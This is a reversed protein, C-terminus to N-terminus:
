PVTLTGRLEIRLQIGALFGDILESGSPKDSLTTEAQLVIIGDAWPESTSFQLDPVVFDADPNATAVQATTIESLYLRVRFDADALTLTTGDFEGTATVEDVGTVALSVASIPLGSLADGKIVFLALPFAGMDAEVATGDITLAWPGVLETTVPDDVIGPLAIGLSGAFCATSGGAVCAGAEGDDGGGAFAIEGKPGPMSEGVLEIQLVGEQPHDYTLVVLARHVALPVAPTTESVAPEDVPTDEGLAEGETNGPLAVRLCPYAAIGLRPVHTADSLPQATAGALVQLARMASRSTVAANTRGPATAPATGEPLEETNPADGAPAQPTHREPQGTECGGFLARTTDLDRPTYSLHLEIAAGPPILVDSTPLEREGLFVGELKFHGGENGGGSFTVLSVRQPESPHPNELKVVQTSTATIATREFYERQYEAFPLSRSCGCGLCLVLGWWVARCRYRWQMSM